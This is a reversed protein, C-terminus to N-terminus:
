TVGNGELRGVKMAKELRIESIVPIQEVGRSQRRHFPSTRMPMPRSAASTGNAVMM